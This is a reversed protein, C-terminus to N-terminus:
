DLEDSVCVDVVGDVDVLAVRGCGVDAGFIRRLQADGVYVTLPV